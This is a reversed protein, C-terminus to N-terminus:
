LVNKELVAFPIHHSGVVREKLAEEVSRVDLIYANPTQKMIEISSFRPIAIEGGAAQWDEITFANFGAINFGIRTVRTAVEDLKHKEVFLLIEDKPDFMSGLWACLMGGEPMLYANKIYGIHSVTKGKKLDENSNRTDIVICGAQTLEKWKAIDVTTKNTAEKFNKHGFLNLSAIKFCQAPPNQVEATVKKMFEEKLAVQFLPNGKLENGITKSSDTGTFHSQLVVCNPNLNKFKGVSEFLMECLQEKSADSPVAIDVKGSLADGTFAFLQTNDADLVVFSTSELTHGPTPIASLRVSGM